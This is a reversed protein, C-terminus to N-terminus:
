TRLALAKAIATSANADKRLFKYKTYNELVIQPISEPPMEGKAVKLLLSKLRSDHGPIFQQTGDRSEIEEDCGCGCPYKRIPKLIDRPNFKM